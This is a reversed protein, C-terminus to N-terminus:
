NSPPRYADQLTKLPKFHEGFKEEPIIPPLEGGDPPKNFCEKQVKQKQQWELLSELYRRASEVNMIQKQRALLATDYVAFEVEEPPEPPPPVIIMDLLDEVLGLKANEFFEAQSVLGTKEDVVPNTSFEKLFMTKMGNLYQEVTIFGSKGPDMARFISDIHKDEFLLPAREAHGSRFLLCQDLLGRLFELPHEPENALLHNMMFKFLDIIRRRRFYRFLTKERQSLTGRKNFLLLNAPLHVNIKQTEGDQEAAESMRLKCSTKSKTESKLEEPLGEEEEEEELEDEDEYTICPTVPLFQGLGPIGPYIENEGEDENLIQELTSVNDKETTYIPKEVFARLDDVTLEPKFM